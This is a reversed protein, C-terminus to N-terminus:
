PSSQPKVGTNRLNIVRNLIDFWITSGVSIALATILLGMLKSLVGFPTSLNKYQVALLGNRDKIPSWGLPFSVNNMDDLIKQYNVADNQQNYGQAAQILGQSMAANSWLSQAIGITDANLVIAVLLGVIISIVQVRNKYWGGAREITTMYWNEINQRVQALRKDHDPETMEAYDILPLLSRRLNVNLCNINKRLEALYQDPASPRNQPSGMLLDLLTISFDKVSIYSPQKNPKSLSLIIPHEYFAKLANMNLKTLHTPLNDPKGTVEGKNPEKRAIWDERLRQIGNLQTASPELLKQIADALNKSRMGLLTSIAETIYSTIASLLLYVLFLGIALALIESLGMM